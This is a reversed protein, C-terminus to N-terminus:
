ETSFVSTLGTRSAASTAYAPRALIKRFSLPMSLDLTCCSGSLPETGATV